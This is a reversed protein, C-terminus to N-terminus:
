QRFCDEVLVFDIGPSRLFCTGNLFTSKHVLTKGFVQEHSYYSNFFVFFCPVFALLFYHFHLTFNDRFLSDWPRATARALRVGPTEAGRLLPHGAVPFYGTMVVYIYIPNRNSM